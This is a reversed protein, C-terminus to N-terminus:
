LVFRKRKNIIFRVICHSQMYPGSCIIVFHWYHMINSIQAGCKNHMQHHESLICLEQGTVINDAFAQKAEAVDHM